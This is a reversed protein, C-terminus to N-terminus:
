AASEPIPAGFIMTLDGGAGKHTLPRYDRLWPEAQPDRTRAYWPELWVLNSPKIAEGMDQEAGALKALTAPDSFNDLIFRVLLSLRNKKMTYLPQGNAEGTEAMMLLPTLAFSHYGLARSGRAVELPLSGDDQIEDIGVQYGTMGWDYLARDNAAVGAATAAWAAWYRHNSRRSGRNPYKSYDAMVDNGLRRLWALTADKGSSSQPAWRQLKIVACSLAALEWKRLAEDVTPGERAKQRAGGGLWQRAREAQARSHQM